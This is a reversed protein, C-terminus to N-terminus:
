EAEGFMEGVREELPKLRAGPADRLDLVHIRLADRELHISLTGPLLSVASAFFTRAAPTSLRVPYDVFGPSLSPHRQLARGAVDLGGRVSEALFWPAFRLLGRARVRFSGAPVLALSTTAAALVILGGLLPYAVSGEALIWFLPGFFLTRALLARVFRVTDRASVAIGAM